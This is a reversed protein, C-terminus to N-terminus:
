WKRRLVVAGIALLAMTAPEPIVEFNYTISSGGFGITINDVAGIFTGWGSGVGASIGLVDFNAYNTCWGSQLKLRDDYNLGTLPLTHTSWMRYDNGFLDDTVWQDVPASGSFGNYIREFVLYGYQTRDESAVYIRLVPHLWNNATGGSQRYWEYSLTSLDGLKGLVQPVGGNFNYYEIDAKSSAGTPGQTANFWVSGNGSRPLDTRVGVHGNNRVNNYYWGTSDLAAGPTAPTTNTSGANTFDDGPASNNSYVVVASASNAFIAVAALASLVAIMRKMTVVEM